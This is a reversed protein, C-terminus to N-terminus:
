FAIPLDVHLVRYNDHWMTGNLGFGFSVGPRLLVTPSVPVNFRVGLELSLQSRLVSNAAVAAPTSLWHQYHLEVGPTLWPLVQYGLHAAATFNTRMADSDVAAGRVRVLQLVTAEAQATFGHGVYVIGAGVTPTAYNVAFLANDMASRTYIGSGVTRRVPAEPANGGGMGLPLAVGAFFSLRLGPYVQPTFLAFFLPNSFANASAGMSPAQHVFAERAYVGFTAPVVAYGATLMTVGSIAPNAFAWTTEIRVLSPAIAPRMTWPLSYRARQQSPTPAPAAPTPAPSSPATQAYAFAPLCSLCSLVLAARSCARACKVMSM